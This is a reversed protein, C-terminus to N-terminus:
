VKMEHIRSFVIRSTRGTISHSHIEIPKEVMQESPDIFKAAISQRKFKLM